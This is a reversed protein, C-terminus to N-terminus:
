HFWCISPRTAQSTQCNRTALSLASLATALMLTAWAYGSARHLRARQTRGLRAWLAVPGIATAVLAASLHITIATTMQM